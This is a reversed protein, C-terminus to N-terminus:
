ESMGDNRRIVSVAAMVASRSAVDAIFSLTMTGNNMSTTNCEHMETYDAVHVEGIGAPILRSKKEGLVCFKGGDKLLICLMDSIISLYCANVKSKQFM